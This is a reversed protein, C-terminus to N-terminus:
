EDPDGDTLRRPARYGRHETLAVAGIMFALAIASVVDRSQLSGADVFEDDHNVILAALDDVM